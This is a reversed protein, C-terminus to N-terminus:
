HVFAIYDVTIAAGTNYTTMALTLVNGAIKWATAIAGSPYSRASAIAYDLTKGPFSIEKTVTAASTAEMTVAGHVIGLSERFKHPERVYVSQGSANFKMMSYPAGDIYTGLDFYANDGSGGSSIYYIKGDPTKWQRIPNVTEVTTSGTFTGGTKDMKEALATDIADANYNFDEINYYDSGAPKKLGYNTTTEM